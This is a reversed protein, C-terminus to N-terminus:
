EDDHSGDDDTTGRFIVCLGEQRRSVHEPSKPSAQGCFCCIGIDEGTGDMRLLQMKRTATRSAPHTVSFGFASADDSEDFGADELEAGNVSVVAADGATAAAACAISVADSRWCM